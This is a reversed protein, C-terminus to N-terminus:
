AEQHEDGPDANTTDVAATAVAESLDPTIEGTIPDRVFAGGVGRYADAIPENM